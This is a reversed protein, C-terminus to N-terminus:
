YKEHSDTLFYFMCIVCTHKFCQSFQSDCEILLFKEEIYAREIAEGGQDFWVGIM